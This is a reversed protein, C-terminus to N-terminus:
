AAGPSEPPGARAAPETRGLPHRRPDLRVDRIALGFSGLAVFSAGTTILVGVVLLALSGGREALYLLVGLPDVVAVLYTASGVLLVVIGLLVPVEASTRAVVATRRGVPEVGRRWVLLAALGAGWATAVFVGGM